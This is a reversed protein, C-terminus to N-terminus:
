LNKHNLRNRLCGLSYNALEKADKNQSEAIENLVELLYQDDLIGENSGVACESLFLMLYFHVKPNKHNRMKEVMYRILEVNFSLVKTFFRDIEKPKGNLIVEDIENYYDISLTASNDNQVEYFLENNTLIELFERFSPALILEQNIELDIYVVPPNEEVNRYDLVVWTHGSGSLLVINSPLGWEEILEFTDLIGNDEGIGMIHDINISNDDWSTPEMTPYTDYILYGGNQQMLIDIFKQPLKVNLLKEAEQIAKKTLPALKYMDEEIDARWISM